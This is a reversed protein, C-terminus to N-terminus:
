ARRWAIQDSILLVAHNVDLFELDSKEQYIARAEHLQDAIGPIRLDFLVVQFATVDSPDFPRGNKHGNRGEFLDYMKLGLADIIEETECGAYCKLLARGDDGEAVSLSPKRDDHAPCRAVHYGNRLTVGELRNLVREVPGGDRGQM